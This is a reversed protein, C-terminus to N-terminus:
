FRHRVSPAALGALGYAGDVHLWAGLEAAADAAARLDDVIGANTTGATAVVAFVRDLDVDDLARRLGGATLQGEQGTPVALVDAFVRLAEIGGVGDPTITRGAMARLDAESRSKDLPPPDM